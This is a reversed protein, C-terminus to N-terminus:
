IRKYIWLTDLRQAEPPGFRFYSYIYDGKVLPLSALIFIVVDMFLLNVVPSKAM